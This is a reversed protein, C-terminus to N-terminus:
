KKKRTPKELRIHGHAPKLSTDELCDPTISSYVHLTTSAHLVFISQLTAVAEIEKIAKEDFAGTSKRRREARVTWEANV